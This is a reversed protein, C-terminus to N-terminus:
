EKKNSTYSTFDGYGSYSSVDSSEVNTWINTNYVARLSVSEDPMSFTTTASTANALTVNGSVIEWKEFVRDVSDNFSITVEQGVEAKSVTTGGITASGDVVSITNSSDATLSINSIFLYSTGNKNYSGGCRFGLYYQSGDAVFEHTPITTPTATIKKNQALKTVTGPFWYNSSANGQAQEFESQNLIAFDAIDIDANITYVACSFKYTEGSVLTPMKICYYSYEPNWISFSTADASNIGIWPADYRVLNSNNITTWLNASAASTSFVFSCTISNIVLVLVLFVSLLKKM